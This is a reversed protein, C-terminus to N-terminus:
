PGDPSNLRIMAGDMRIDGEARVEFRRCNVAVTEAADLELRAGRLRVVPGTEALLIHVEVEGQPSRIELEEAGGALRVVVSRGSPLLKEQDDILLPDM